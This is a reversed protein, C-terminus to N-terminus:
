SRGYQTVILYIAGVLGLILGIPLFLTTFGFAWDALWGVGGWFALGGLLYSVVTMGDARPEKESGDGPRDNM